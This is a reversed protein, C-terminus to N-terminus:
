SRVFGYFVNIHTTLPLDYANKVASNLFPSM